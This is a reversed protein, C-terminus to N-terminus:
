TLVRLFSPPSYFESYVTLVTQSNWNKCFDQCVFPVQPFPLRHRMRRKKEKIDQSVWQMIHYCGATLNGVRGHGMMLQREPPCFIWSVWMVCQAQSSKVPFLLLDFYLATNKTATGHRYNRCEPIIGDCFQCTDSHHAMSGNNWLWKLSNKREKKALRFQM